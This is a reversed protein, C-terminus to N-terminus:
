WERVDAKRANKRYINEKMKKMEESHSAFRPRKEEPEMIWALHSLYALKGPFLRFHVAIFERCSGSFSHNCIIVWKAKLSLCFDNTEHKGM